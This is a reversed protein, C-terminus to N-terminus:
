GRGRLPPPSPFHPAALELNRWRRSPPPGGLRAAKTSRFSRARSRSDAGLLRFVHLPPSIEMAKSSLSAAVPKTPCGGERPHHRRYPPTPGQPDSVTPLPGAAVGSSLAGDGVGIETVGAKAFAPAAAM